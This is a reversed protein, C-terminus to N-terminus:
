AGGHSKHLVVTPEPVQAAAFALAPLAEVSV